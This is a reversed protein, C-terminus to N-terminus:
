PQRGMEVVISDIQALMARTPQTHHNAQVSFFLRQGGAPEIIGSLTHVRSISGTKAWVRGELPTGKFRNRLSGTSGSKPLGNGFTEWRPHQRIFRLVQTFALPSVMNTASLGSGDSLSIQTSDVGVSDILFRREVGLGEAWSGEAGFMRGLQKLMLEAFLNQSTNLIPFIWDKLPRSEVEVLPAQQRLHRYATSDLTSRTAGLVAVGAEAMAKRLARAAFLNPDPMAFYETGGRSSLNVTGEATVELTGPKRFFDLNDGPTTRTLSRNELTVDGLAPFVSVAAPAGAKPGPLWALDISNDNFALGSVPAAYWWNLDYSEWGGHVTQPEFYSGDGILDGAVAVIGRGRLSDAMVRLKAFIDRDCVRAQTTDTAYCRNSFTPDGRGYLVLSGQLVGDVIPGNGYLSTKVKWDPPLLAAAVAAVVIKTNSAPIFLRDSNRGYLLRGNQDVVAVGWLQRNFPAADLRADLRQQLTQAPLPATLTTSLSLVTMGLMALFRGVRKGGSLETM